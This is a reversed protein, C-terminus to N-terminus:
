LGRHVLDRAVAGGLLGDGGRVRDGAVELLEQALAAGLRLGRTCGDPIRPPAGTTPLNPGIAGVIGGTRLEVLRKRGWARIAVNTTITRGARATDTMSVELCGQSTTRVTSRAIAIDTPTALAAAAM